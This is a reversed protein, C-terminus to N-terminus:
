SHKGAQSVMCKANSLDVVVSITLNQQLIFRRRAAAAFVVWPLWSVSGPPVRQLGEVAKGPINMGCDLSFPCFPTRAGSPACAAEARCLRRLSFYRKQCNEDKPTM